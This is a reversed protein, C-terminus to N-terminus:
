AWHVTGQGCSQTTLPQDSKEVQEAVQPPPLCVRVRVTIVGAALPPAPHGAKVSSASQLVVGQERGQTTPSQPAHLSQLWDQPVPCRVRVRDMRWGAEFPPVTQGARMSTCSHVFAGQSGRQGYLAQLLKLGQETEQPPPVQVRVRVKVPATGLPTAQLSNVSVSVHLGLGQSELQTTPVQDAQLGQETVQLPPVCVRTCDMTDWATPLPIGQGGGVCNVSVRGHAAAVQGTSQTTLAHLSQDAQGVAQVCAELMCVRVRVTMVGAALPPWAHGV